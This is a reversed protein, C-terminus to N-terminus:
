TPQLWNCIKSYWIVHYASIEVKLNLCWLKLILWCKSRRTLYVVKIRDMSMNLTGRVIFYLVSSFRLPIMVHKMSVLQTMFKIEFSYRSVLSCEQKAQVFKLNNKRLSTPSYNLLERVRIVMHRFEGRLDGLINHNHRKISSSNFWAKILVQDVKICFWIAKTCYCHYDLYVSEIKVRFDIAEINKYANIRDMRSVSTSYHFFSVNRLWKSARWLRCYKPEFM